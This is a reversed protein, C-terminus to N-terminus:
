INAWSLKQYSEISDAIISSTTKEFKVKIEEVSIFMVEVENTLNMLTTITLQVNSEEVKKKIYDIVYIWMFFRVIKFQRSLEPDFKICREEESM